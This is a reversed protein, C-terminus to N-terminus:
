LINPCDIMGNMIKKLLIVDQIERRKKLTSIGYRSCQYPYDLRHYEIRERYLLIKIFRMQISELYSIKTLCYPSWVSSAYDHIPRVLTMFLLPLTRNSCDKYQRQIFGTLRFTHARIYDYHVYIFYLNQTL